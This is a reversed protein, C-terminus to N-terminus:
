NRPIPVAGPFLRRPSSPLRTSAIPSSVATMDFPPSRVCGDIVRHFHVGNYFGTNALDIFNSATIPMRDMFIEATFAGQAHFSAPGPVTLPSKPDFAIQPTRLSWRTRTASTTWFSTQM